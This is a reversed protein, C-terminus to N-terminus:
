QSFKGMLKTEALIHGKMAGMLESKKAGPKLDLMADLAYLKFNYRHVGSPPLPGGYGIEGFDNVGQRTGNKSEKASPFKTKMGEETPPINYVLWHTWGNADPDDVILAFSKTGDPVEEWKLEPSVNGRNYGSNAPLNKGDQFGPSTLVIAGAQVAAALVLFVAFFCVKKM